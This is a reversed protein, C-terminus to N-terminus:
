KTDPCKTGIQALLHRLADILDCLHKTKDTETYAKDNDKSHMALYIIYIYIYILRYTRYVLQAGRKWWRPHKVM